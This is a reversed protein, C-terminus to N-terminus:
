TVLIETVTTLADAFTELVPVFDPGVILVKAGSDNVIYEIEPGALRWNVDVCVANLLAAGYFVEFHEIGNKDLFAVRDHADVGAAALLNAVQCSRRYLEGWGVERDGLVLAPHEARGDGHARIIDVVSEIKGM